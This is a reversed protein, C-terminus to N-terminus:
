TMVLRKKWRLVIEDGLLGSLLLRKDEIEKEEKEKERQDAHAQVKTRVVYTLIAGLIGDVAIYLLQGFDLLSVQSDPWSELAIAIRELIDTYDAMKSNEGVRAM